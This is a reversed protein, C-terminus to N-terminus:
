GDDVEWRQRLGIVTRHLITGVNTESLGTIAAIARNTLEAGYKMAVLERERDPLQALVRALRAFDSNRRVADEVSRDAHGQSARAGDIGNPDVEVEHRAARRDHRFKEASVRRAIGFVWSSFGGLENRFRERGIWARKFTEATM